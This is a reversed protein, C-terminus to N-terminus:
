ETRLEVLIFGNGSSIIERCRWFWGEDEQKAQDAAGNGLTLPGRKNLYDERAPARGVRDTAELAAVGLCEDINDILCTIVRGDALFPKTSKERGEADQYANSIRSRADSIRFFHRFDSYL